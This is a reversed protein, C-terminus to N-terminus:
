GVQPTFCGITSPAHDSTQVQEWAQITCEFKAPALSMSLPAMGLPAIGATGGGAQFSPKSLGHRLTEDGETANVTATEAAGDGAGSGPPSALDIAVQTEAATAMPTTFLSRMRWRRM